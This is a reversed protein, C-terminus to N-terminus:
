STRLSGWMVKQPKSLKRPEIRIEGKHKRPDSQEDGIGGEIGETGYVVDGRWAGEGNLWDGSMRCGRADGKCTPTGGMDSGIMRFGARMSAVDGTGSSGPALDVLGDSSTFYFLGKDTHPPAGVWVRGFVCGSWGRDLSTGRSSSSGM